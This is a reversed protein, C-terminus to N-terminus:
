TCNRDGLWDPRSNGVDCRGLAPEGVAKAITALKFSNRNIWAGAFLFRSELVGCVCLERLLRTNM